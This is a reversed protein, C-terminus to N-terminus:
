TRRRIFHSRLQQLEGPNLIWIRAVLLLAVFSLGGLLVRISVDEASAIVYLAGFTGVVTWALALFRRGMGPLQRFAFYFLITSDLLVRCTWAIAAGEAGYAGILLWAALLYLPLETLHALATLDPRGNAQVLAHPVKSLASLLVGAALWQVIRESHTAFTAGLWLDLGERAFTTVLLVIPVVTLFVYRTGSVFLNGARQKDNSLATSFAPFLVGTFAIPILLARTVVDYPTAYFAVATLSTLAGLLFRDMNDMLPGVLNSITMWGGFKVLSKADARLWHPRALDPDLQVCYMFYFATALARAILVAGAMAALHDVLQVALFPGLFTFAGLVGNILAIARFRQHAELVGRLGAALTVFTIGLAVVQFAGRTEDALSPPIHLAVQVMWPVFLLLLLSGILGVGLMLSLGTWFLPLIAAHKGQSLRDAILKTLAKGLGFDFLSAYGVLAWILTLVGFREVGIRHLLLPIVILAVGLPAGQAILNWVTNRALRRGSTLSQDPAM